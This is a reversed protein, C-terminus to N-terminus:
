SRLKYTLIAVSLYSLNIENKDKQSSSVFLMELLVSNEKLGEM